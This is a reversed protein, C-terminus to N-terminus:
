DFGRTSGQGLNSEYEDILIRRVAHTAEAVQLDYQRAVLGGIEDITRKGDIAGLVQAHLLHNTSAVVFEESAPIPQQTDLIWKPLYEYRPPKAAERVKRASFSFANETRGHASLPSQLYPATRRTASIVEFGGEELL